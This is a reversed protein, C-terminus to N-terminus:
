IKEPGNTVTCGTSDCLGRIMDKFVLDHVLRSLNWYFLGAIGRPYFRSRMVLVTNNDNESLSYELTAEGPLRMEAALLLRRNAQVDLVRWFDITDGINLELSEPRTRRYGVGGLLRDIKGRLEWLFENGYWGNEGGITSIKDWVEKKCGRLEMRFASEFQQGGAYSADGCTRWEPRQVVDEDSGCIEPVNQELKELARQIATRTDSLELPMIERIRNDKCVVRNRLGLILPRALAVPIPSVLGLWYSSLKPTLFPVPIIIRKRLGAEQAYIKFLGEYTEVDPGGIDYANGMTEEHDLCGALYFIVDRISIPQSETRVWKPTVMVPLRDVLYRMIEFSASGAGLILGARFFTCPVSGGCLIGGVEARSQLHHSIVPDDPILGGLYIIRELGVQEAARVMNEAALRDRAAFDGHGEMSHVLYYAAHCGELAKRLSEPEFLDATAIECDPHSAYPRLRLKDISRGVARVKWGKHLLHAVLRGGVYGTAGLVCILKERKNAENNATM